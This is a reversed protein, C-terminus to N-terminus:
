LVEVAGRLAKGILRPIGGMEDTVVTSAGVVKKIFTLIQDGTTQSPLRALEHDLAGSVALKPNEAVVTRLIDFTRPKDQSFETNTWSKFELVPLYEIVTTVKLRFTVATGFNEFVMYMPSRYKQQDAPEESNHFIQDLPDLPFYNVQMPFESSLDKVERQFAFPHQILKTPNPVTSGGFASNVPGVGPVFAATITGQLTLVPATCEAIMQCAVTRYAVFRKGTDAMNGMQGQMQHAVQNQFENTTLSVGMAYNIYSPINPTTAGANGNILNWPYVAVLSRTLGSSQPVTIDVLDTFTFLGSPAPFISPIRSAKNMLPDFVCKLYAGDVSDYARAERYTPGGKRIDATLAQRRLYKSDKKKDKKLDKKIRKVEKVEKKLEKKIELPIKSKKSSSM